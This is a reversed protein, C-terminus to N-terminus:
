AAEDPFTVRRAQALGDSLADPAADPEALVTIQVAYDRGPAVWVTGTGTRGGETLTGSEGQAGGAGTLATPPGLRSGSDVASRIRRLGGYLPVPDATGAPAVYSAVFDVGDRSLAYARDPDSGAKSLLWGEGVVRLTLTDDGPGLVLTSGARLSEDDDLAQDILPWGATLGVVVLLVGVVARRTPGSPPSPSSRTDSPPDIAPDM